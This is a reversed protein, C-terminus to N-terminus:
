ILMTNFECRELNLILLDLTPSEVRFVTPFMKESVNKVVYFLLLGWSYMAWAEKSEFLIFALYSNKTERCSNGSLFM